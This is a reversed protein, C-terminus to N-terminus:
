RRRVRGPDQRRDDGDQLWSELAAKLAADSTTDLAAKAHTKVSTASSTWPCACAWLLIRRQERVPLQVLGPRARRLGQVMPISPVSRAVHGPRLRHRQRHVDARRVAPDHLKVYPTEGCGACAGSFEMLPRASSAAGSPSSTWLSRGERLPVPLSELQGAGADPVGAAEDGPGEGQRPVVDACSGCGQATWTSGGPHPLHLEGDGQRQGQPHHLGAPAQKAEEKTFLFPRIAAHPCVLPASTAASATTRCDWQPVDVAIGRKEYKSTELRADRRRCLQPVQQCPIDDGAQANVPILVNRVYTRCVQPRLRSCPPEDPLDKWSDPM